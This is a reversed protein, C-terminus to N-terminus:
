HARPRPAELKLAWIQFVLPSYSARFTGFSECYGPILETKM